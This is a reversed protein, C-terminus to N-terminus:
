RATRDDHDEGNGAQGSNREPLGGPRALTRAPDDPPATRSLAVFLGDSPPRFVSLDRVPGAMPTDRSPRSPQVPVAAPTRNAQVVFLPATTWSRM